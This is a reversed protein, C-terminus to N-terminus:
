VFAERALDSASMGIKATLAALLRQM